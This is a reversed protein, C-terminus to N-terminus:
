GNLLAGLLIALGIMSVLFVLTRVVPIGVAYLPLYVTRAGLWLWGGIATWDSTRGALVVGILAAIAIPYTELFNAQARLLRGGLPDIPPLAEDRAGMNWKAGYQRTRVHAAAFIHVLLLICSWALITLEAPM